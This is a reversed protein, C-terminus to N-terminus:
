NPVYGSKQIVDKGAQTQLWEYVKYTMSSRDEDARIVAYVETAYPYSRNGITYRDPFVGNVGLTKLKNGPRIIEENYYYITYGIAYPDHAVRDIMGAMTFVLAEEYVPLDKFYSLGKMVLLDMLEQSGSNPNRVYPNISSYEVPQQSEWGLEKWNTTEGTYINQIEETTLSNLSNQPNVIFIFADLAIPTEILTVGHLEAYKKEDSSMTRASLVIDVERDILNIFSQHTQSSRVARDFKLRTNGKIQPEVSWLKSAHNVQNEEWQYGLGMLECAIIRNLPLTSTSGDIVPYNHITLGDIYPSETDIARECRTCIVLVSIAAVVLSAFRNM